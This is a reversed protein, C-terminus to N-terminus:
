SVIFYDNELAILEMRAKPRWMAKLRNHLFNYGVKRGLVKVILSQRWPRRLSRKEEKTLLIKPCRPDDCKDGQEDDDSVDDEETTDNRGRGTVMESYSLRQEEM